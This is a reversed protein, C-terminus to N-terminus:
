TDAVRSALTETPLYRDHKGDRVRRLLDLALLELLDKRATLITVRHTHAHGKITAGEHPHRLLHSLLARQRHNFQETNKLVRSLDRMREHHNRLRAQLDTTAQNLVGLQHLVFYTLDADDTETHVFALYYDRPSRDIPGSISLYQAFDYGSRLMQWYFLARAMRGNGDVFPHEYALWFHLTIARLLPHIFVPADNSDRSNAFALMAHLRKPLEDAPPPTYWVEGSITDVVTVAENATRLRGAADAKDLADDGLITHIELLDHLDLDRHAIALLRQMANYNNLVMREGRSTPSRAERVMSAAQERTTLRAGEIVSSHIAEEILQEIRYRERVADDGIAEVVARAADRRDLEHITRAITDLRCFSFPQGKQDVFGPIPTRLGWRALKQSAWWQEPALGAPPPRRRLDNWHLYRGDPLTPQAHPLLLSLSDRTIGLADPPLAPFRM